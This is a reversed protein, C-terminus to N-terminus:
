PLQLFPQWQTGQRPAILVDSDSDSKEIVALYPYLHISHVDRQFSSRRSRCFDDSKNDFSNIQHALGHVYSAFRNHTGFLDECLYVGGPSLYPLTEELTVLQQEYNHGGDDIVIDFGSVQERVTKWFGRDAQDGILIKINDSEYVKCEDQIDIGYVTCQPGFYEKWMQLSGGSYVGIEIVKVPRGVFRAFHRHYVEFYHTWKWIGPGEKQNWFFEELPNQAPSALLNSRPPQAKESSSSWARGRIFGALTSPLLQVLGASTWNERISERTESSQRLYWRILKLLFIADRTLSNKM